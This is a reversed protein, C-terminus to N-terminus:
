QHRGGQPGRHGFQNVLLNDTRGVGGDEPYLIDAETQEGGKDANDKVLGIFFTGSGMLQYRDKRYFVPGYEGGDKGDDRGVGAYAYAKLTDALYKLQGSKVEQMGFVDPKMANLYQVVDAKRYDWANIGDSSTALRINFTMIRFTRAQMSPTLVAFLALLLLIRKMNKTM